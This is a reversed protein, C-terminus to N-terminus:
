VTSYEILICLWVSRVVHYCQVDVILDFSGGQAAVPQAGANGGASVRERRRGASASTSGASLVSKLLLARTLDPSEEDEVEDGGTWDEEPDIDRRGLPARVEQPPIDGREYEAQVQQALAFSLVEASAGAERAGGGQAAGLSGNGGHAAASCPYALDLVDGQLFICRRVVESSIARARATRLPAACLDVAVVGSGQAALWVATSGSGCGLELCQWEAVGRACGVVLHPGLEKRARETKRAEWAAAKKAERELIEARRLALVERLREHTAVMRERIQIAYMNRISEHIDALEAEFATAQEASLERALDMACDLDPIKHACFTDFVRGAMARCAVKIMGELKEIKSTSEAQQGEIEAIEADMERLVKEISPGGDPGESPWPVSDDLLGEDHKAAEETSVGAAPARHELMMTSSEGRRQAARHADTFTREFSLGAVLQSCPAHSDWPAFGRRYYALWKDVQGVAADSAM